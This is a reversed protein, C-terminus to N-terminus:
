LARADGPRVEVRDGVGEIRANQLVSDARNGTLAAPHWVDVGIVSGKPVRHAAAIDVIGPWLRVDLVQESGRWPIHGLLREALGLKGVKSYFLMGAAGLLSYGGLGYAVWRGGSSLGHGVFVPALGLALLTRIIRPSDLGYNARTPTRM